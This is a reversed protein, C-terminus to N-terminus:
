AIFDDIESLRFTYVQKEDVHYVHVMSRCPDFDLIRGPISLKVGMGKNISLRVLRNQHICALIIEEVSLDADVTNKSSLVQTLDVKHLFDLSRSTNSSSKNEM